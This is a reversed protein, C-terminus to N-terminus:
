HWPCVFLFITRKLMNGGMRESIVDNICSEGKERISHQDSEKKGSKPQGKRSPFLYLSIHLFLLITIIRLHRDNVELNSIKIETPSFKSMSNNDM